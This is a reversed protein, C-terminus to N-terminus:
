SGHSKAWTNYASNSPMYPPRYRGCAQNAAEFQPSGQDIGVSAPDPIRGTRDPDPFGAIGHRRVCRAFQLSEAAVNQQQSRSPVPLLQRCASQATQFRAASVGLRELAVKPITGNAAPDPFSLVGHARMCRSFAIAGGLRSSAAGSSSTTSRATTTSGVQAVHSGSTSGCATALLSVLSVAVAVAVLRSRTRRTVAHAEVQM